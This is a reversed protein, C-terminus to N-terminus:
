GAHFRQKIQRPAGGGDTVPLWRTRCSAAQRAPEPMAAAPHFGDGAAPHGPLLEACRGRGSGLLMKASRRRVGTRRLTFHSAARVLRRAM